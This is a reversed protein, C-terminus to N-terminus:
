AESVCRILETKANGKKKQSKTSLVMFSKDFSYTGMVKEKSLRSILLTQESSIFAKIKFKLTNKLRENFVAKETLRKYNTKLKRKKFVTM